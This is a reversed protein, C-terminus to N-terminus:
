AARRLAAAHKRVALVADREREVEQMIQRPLEEQGSCRNAFSWVMDMLAAKSLAEIETWYAEPVMVPKQAKLHM